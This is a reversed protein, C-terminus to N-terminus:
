LAAVHNIDLSLSSPVIFSCIRYRGVMKFAMALFVEVNTKVEAREM